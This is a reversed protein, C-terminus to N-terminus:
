HPLAKDGPRSAEVTEVYGCQRCRFTQLEPLPGVAPATGVLVFAEGACCAPEDPSAPAPPM